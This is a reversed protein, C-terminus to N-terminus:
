SGTYTITITQTTGNWDVKAGLNETVFRLPLMTRSNIIEPVVKLNQSDILTNIGNVLANANGIQLRISNSGLNIIVTSTEAVWEVTGGLSEIIARIPLLTRSNKIVPPSDLTNSTGNVTYTNNGIQLIIVTQTIEKEFTAEISHDSTINTFTYASVSGKLVGDVKVNSTKYGSNPTITFTKSEGSNVTITGSPSILGGHGASSVITFTKKYNVILDEEGKNGSADFAVIKITNTGETLGVNASFTGNELAFDVKTVGIWLSVVGVNDTVKGTITVTPINVETPASAEIVPPTTDVTWVFEVSIRHNSNISIFTYSNVAGVSSGDVKVDKIHYGTTPTIAFIQDAGSNVAVTGSPSISGGVGASATIIYTQKTCYNKWEYDQRGSNDTFHNKDVVEAHNKDTLKVTLKTTAFSFVWSLELIGDSADSTKTTSIGWDCDTPHCKGFAQVNFDEGLIKVIIKTIDPTDANDNIWYGVFDEPTYDTAKVVDATLPRALTFLNCIFFVLVLLVVIFKKM